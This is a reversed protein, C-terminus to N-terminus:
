KIAIAEMEVLLNSRCLKAEVCTSAPYPNLCMSDYFSKRIRNFEEYDRDIDRIYITTRAVNQWSMGSARLVETVNEFMLKAQKAFNGMHMTKGDPGVSATGSVFVVNKDGLLVEMGRSFTAPKDYHYAECMAKPVNIARKMTEEKFNTREAPISGCANAHQTYLGDHRGCFLRSAMSKRNNQM